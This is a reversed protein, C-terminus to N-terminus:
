VLPLGSSSIELRPATGSNYKVATSVTFSSDTTSLPIHFTRSGYGQIKVSPNSGSTITNEISASSFAWPGITPLSPHKYETSSDISGTLLRLYLNDTSNGGANGAHGFAQNSHTTEFIQATSGSYLGLM